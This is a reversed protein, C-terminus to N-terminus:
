EDMYLNESINRFDKRLKGPWIKKHLYIVTLIAKLFIECYKPIPFIEQIYSYRQLHTFINVSAENVSKLYRSFEKWTLDGSKNDINDYCYHVRKHTNCSNYIKLFRWFGKSEPNKEHLFSIELIKSYLHSLFLYEGREQFNLLVRFRVRFWRKSEVVFSHFVLNKTYVGM